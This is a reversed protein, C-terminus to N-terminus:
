KDYKLWYSLTLKNQKELVKDDALSSGVNWYLLIIFLYALSERILLADVYM